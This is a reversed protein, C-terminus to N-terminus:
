GFIISLPFATKSGRRSGRRSGRTSGQTSGQRSGKRSGKKSGKSKTASTPRKSLTKRKLIYGGRIKSSMYM